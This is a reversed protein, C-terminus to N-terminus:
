RRQAKRYRRSVKRFERTLKRLKYIDLPPSFAVQGTNNSDSGGDMKYGVASYTTANPGSVAGTGNVATSSLGINSWLYVGGSNGTSTTAGPTLGIM